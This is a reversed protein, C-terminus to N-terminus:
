GMTSCRETFREWTEKEFCRQRLEFCIRWSLNTGGISFYLSAKNRRLTRGMVIEIWTEVTRTCRRRAGLVVGVKGEIKIQHEKDVYIFLALYQFNGSFINIYKIIFDIHQQDSWSVGKTKFWGLFSFLFLACYNM